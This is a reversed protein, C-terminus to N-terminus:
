IKSSIIKKIENLLKDPTVPKGIYASIGISEAINLYKEKERVTHIIIPINRTRKSNRINKLVDMGSMDPLNLDLIILDPINTSLYDLCTTANNKVIVNYNRRSLISKYTDTVPTEDDCFLIDISNNNTM